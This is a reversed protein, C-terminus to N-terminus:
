LNCCSEPIGQAKQCIRCADARSASPRYPPRGVKISHAECLVQMRRIDGTSAFHLIDTIAARRDDEAQAETAKLNASLEKFPKGGHKALLKQVSGHKGM